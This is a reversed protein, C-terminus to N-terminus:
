KAKRILQCSLFRVCYSMDFSWIFYISSTALELSNDFVGMLLRLSVASSEPWTSELTNKSRSRAM